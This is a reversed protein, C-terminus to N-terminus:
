RVKAVDITGILGRTSNEWLGQIRNEKASTRLSGKPDSSYFNIQANNLDYDSRDFQVTIYSSSDSVFVLASAALSPATIEDPTNSGDFPNGSMVINLKFRENMNTRADLITGEYEGVYPTLKRILLNIEDRKRLKESDSPTKPDGCGFLSPFLALLLIKRM